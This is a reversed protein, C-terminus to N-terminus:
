AAPPTQGITPISDLTEPLLEVRTINGTGVVDNHDELSTLWRKTLLDTIYQPRPERPDTVIYLKGAAVPTEVVPPLVIPPVIIPPPTKVNSPPTVPGAVALLKAIDIAGPDGHDNEPVHQHGAWGSYANWAAGSLRQSAGQGASAPYPAFRVSSRRQIHTQSEIWRMLPMLVEVIVPDKTFPSVARGVVEIQVVGHMNTQVGGPLNKLARAYDRISIHQWVEGVGHRNVVTFHPYNDTGFYNQSSAPFTSSETTHLIGITPTVPNPDDHGPRFNEKAPGYWGDSM